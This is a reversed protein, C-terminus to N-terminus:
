ASNLATSSCDHRFKVACLGACAHVLRLASMSFETRASGTKSLSIRPTHAAASIRTSSDCAAGPPMAHSFPGILFIPRHTSFSQRSGACRLARLAASAAASSADEISSVTRPMNTQLVIVCTYRTNFASTSNYPLAPVARDSALSTRQLFRKAFGLLPPQISQKILTSTASDSVSRKTHSTCSTCRCSSITRASNPACWAYPVYRAASSSRSLAPCSSRPSVSACRLRHTSWCTSATHTSACPSDICAAAVACSTLLCRQPSLRSM